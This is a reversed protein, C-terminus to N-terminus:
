MADLIGSIGGTGLSAAFSAFSAALAARPLPPDRLPRQRPRGRPPVFEFLLFNDLEEM